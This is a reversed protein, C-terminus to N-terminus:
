VRNWFRMLLVPAASRIRLSSHGSSPLRRNRTRSMSYRATSAASVASGLGLLPHRTMRGILTLVEVRRHV